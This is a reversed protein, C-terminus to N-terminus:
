SQPFLRGPKALTELPVVEVSEGLPYRKEGPYVIAVRELALDVLDIRISPTMRPPDARKCEVGPFRDGRRLLLDIETGQHKARFWAEDHPETALVAVPNRELAARTQALLANRAVEM